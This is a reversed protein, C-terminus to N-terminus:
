RNSTLLYFDDDSMKRSNVIYFVESILEKIRNKIASHRNEEEAIDNQGSAIDDIIENQSNQVQSIITSVAIDIKSYQEEFSKNIEDHLKDENVKVNEALKEFLGDKINNLIKDRLHDGAKYIQLAEVLIIVLGAINGFVLVVGMTILVNTVIKVIFKDWTYLGLAGSVAVSADGILIGTLTQFTNFKNNTVEFGNDAKGIFTDIARGIEVDFEQTFESVDDSLNDIDEKILQKAQSKWIEIKERIYKEVGDAIPKLLDKKKDENLFISKIAKWYGFEEIEIDDIDTEWTRKMTEVYNRLSHSLKLYVTESTTDFKRKLITKNDIQKTIIVGSEEKAKQLDALPRKRAVIEQEMTSVTKPYVKSMSSLASSFTAMMKSDSSLFEELSEEFKAVGSKIFLENNNSLRAELAGHANTFFVRKDYLTSDFVGNKDSFIPILIEKTAELVEKQGDEDVQDFRNVVFFVNSLNHNAFNKRIFERDNQSLLATANLAYIIANAKPIYSNTVDSASKREELGPSDIIQVGNQCLPYDTEIVAYDVDIFKDIYGNREIKAQDAVGLRFESNFEAISMVKPKTGNKFYVTVSEKNKGYVIITIIATCALVRSPLIKVGIISNLLTSKGNKFTGMVMVQFIGRRITESIEHLVKADIDMNMGIRYNNITPLTENSTTTGILKAFENLSDTTIQIHQGFQKLSSTNEM